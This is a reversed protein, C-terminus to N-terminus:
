RATGPDTGVPGATRERLAALQARVGDLVAGYRAPDTVALPGIVTVALAACREADGYRTRKELEFSVDSLAVGLAAKEDGEQPIGYARGLRVLATAWATRRRWDGSPLVDRLYFEAILPGVMRRYSEPADDLLPLLETLADLSAATRDPDEPLRLRALTLVGHVFAADEHRGLAVARGEALLRATIMAGAWANADDEENSLDMVLTVLERAMPSDFDSSRSLADFAAVAREHFGSRGPVAQGDTALRMLMRVIPVLEGAATGRGSNGTLVELAAGIREHRVTERDASPDFHARACAALITQPVFAAFLRLGDRPDQRAYDATARFLAEGEAALEEIGSLPDASVQEPDGRRLALAWVLEASSEGPRLRARALSEAAACHERAAVVEHLQLRLHALTLLLSLRRGRREEEAEDDTDALRRLVRLALDRGAAAEEPEPGCRLLCELAGVALDPRVLRQEETDWALNAGELFFAVAQRPSRTRLHEGLTVLTLALGARLRDAEVPEPRGAPATRPTGILERLVEATEPALAAARQLPGTRIRLALLRVLTEGLEALVDARGRFRVTESEARLLCGPSVAAPADHRDLLPAFEVSEAPPPQGLHMALVGRFDEDRLLEALPVVELADSDYEVPDDRVIGLLLGGQEDLVPGGSLGQWPSRGDPVGRRPIADTITMRHRGAIRQTGPNITGGLEVVDRLDRAVGAPFGWAACRHHGTAGTFRGPRPPVCAQAPETSLEILAADVRSDQRQWVVRGDFVRDGGLFRVQAATGGRPGCVHGSGLVLRPALRVGSGYGVAKIEALQRPDLPM